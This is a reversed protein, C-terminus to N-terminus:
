LDIFEPLFAARAHNELAAKAELFHNCRLRPEYDKLAPHALLTQEHAPLVMPMQKEGFARLASPVTKYLSKPVWLYVGWRGLSQLQLPRSIVPIGVVGFDLTLDHLRREIDDDTVSEIRYAHGARM